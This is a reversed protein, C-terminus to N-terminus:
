ADRAELRAVDSRLVYGHGVDQGAVGVVGVLEREADALAGDDDAISVPSAVWRMSGRSILAGDYSAMGRRTMSISSVTWNRMGSVM